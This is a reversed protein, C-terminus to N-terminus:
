NSKGYITLRTGTDLTGAQAALRISTIQTSTNKWVFSGNEIAPIAALQGISGEYNGLKVSSTRNMVKFQFYRPSTTAGTIATSNTGILSNNSANQNGAFNSYSTYGYNNGADNNFRIDVSNADSGGTIAAIFYLETRASFNNVQLAPQSSTAVIEGLLEWNMTNWTLSGSGNTMLATSSAGQVSPFTYPISNLNLNGSSVAMTTSTANTTTANDSSLNRITSSASNFVFGENLNLWAQKLKGDKQAVPVCLSGAVSTDDCGVIPSSSANQAQIVLPKVSTTATSSAVEVETALEVIGGVSETSTAAGQLTIADVYGKTAFQNSTTANTTNKFEPYIDFIWRSTITTSATRNAYSEYFCPPSNSIVFTSGGAHATQLTTSAAYPSFRELGRSLGTLQATGDSNQTIGTFSVFEQKKSTGPQITGCGLDGFNAMAFTQYVSNPQTYGFKTLDLTTQSASVGSGALYYTEGGVALQAGGFNIPNKDYLYSLFVNNQWITGTYEEYPAIQTEYIVKREKLSLFPTNTEISYEWLNTAGFATSYLLVFAITALIIKKM